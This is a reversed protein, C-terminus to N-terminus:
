PMIGRADHTNSTQCSATEVAQIVFKECFFPDIAGGPQDLKFYARGEQDADILYSKIQAAGPAWDLAFARVTEAPLANIAVAEAVM